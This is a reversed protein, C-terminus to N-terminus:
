QAAGADSTQDLIMTAGDETPLAYFNKRIGATEFGFSRYLNLAPENSVRVELIFRNIGRENGLRMLEKMMARAIGRGRFTERVAVNVIEGEDFSQVLGCYGAFQGEEEVCIFLAYDYSLTERFGDATWPQSFCEQDLCAAAEADSATMIRIKM